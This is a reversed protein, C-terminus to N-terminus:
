VPSFCSKREGRVVVSAVKLLFAILSVCVRARPRSHDFLLPKEKLAVAPAKFYFRSSCSCCLMLFNVKGSHSVPLLWLHLHPKLTLRTDVDWVDTMNYTATSNNAHSATGHAREAHATKIQKLVM